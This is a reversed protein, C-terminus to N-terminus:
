FFNIGNKNKSVITVIEVKYNTINVNHCQFLFNSYIIPPLLLAGQVDQIEVEVKLLEELVESTEDM